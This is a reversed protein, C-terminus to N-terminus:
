LSRGPEGLASNFKNSMSQFAVLATFEVVADDDSYLKVELSDNMGPVCLFPGRSNGV